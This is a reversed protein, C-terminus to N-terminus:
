VPASTRVCSAAISSVYRAVSSSLAAVSRFRQAAYHLRHQTADSLLAKRPESHAAHSSASSPRRCYGDEVLMLRADRSGWHGDSAAGTLLM